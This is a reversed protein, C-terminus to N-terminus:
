EHSAGACSTVPVLRYGLEVLGACEKGKLLVLPPKRTQSALPTSAWLGPKRGDVGRPAKGVVQVLGMVRLKDLRTTASGPTTSLEQVLQRLTLPGKDAVARLAVALFPSLEPWGYEWGGMKTQALGRLGAAEKYGKYPGTLTKNQHDVAYVLRLYPTGCLQREVTKEAIVKRAAEQAKLLKKRHEEPNHARWRFITWINGGHTPAKPKKALKRWATKEMEDARARSVGLLKGIDKHIYGRSRLVVVAREKPRLRKMRVGAEAQTATKDEEEILLSPATRARSDKVTTEAHEPLAVGSSEMEKCQQQYPNFLRLIHWKIRRVARPKWIAEGESEDEVRFERAALMLGDYAVSLVTDINLKYKRAGWIACGEALHISDEVRRKEEETLPRDTAKEKKEVGAQLVRRRYCVASPHTGLRRAIASLSEEGALIDEDIEPTWDIQKLVKKRGNGQQNVRVESAPPTGM